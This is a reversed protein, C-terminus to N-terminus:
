VQDYDLHIGERRAYDHLHQAQSEQTRCNAPWGSAEEKIKLWTNVYEAFLGQRSQPFHWVEHIKLVVYGREVAKHLEPTCWTGTLARQADTHPCQWTKAHLPRDLQNEVCTRCLPFTLKDGTRYPLVPHYLGPPPLVTCKALGFYPHLDVTDPAYIFQPHGVPYRANKNVWPYLSTYDYYRIEEGPDATRHLQVVNTRGGFFAERPQLPPQLHLSAVYDAVQPQDLLRWHWDCEWMEVVTYGRVRLSRVKTQTTRYADEMTRDLLRAHTEQRQPHCRPCGHWYCGHFEYVTRTTADYGDVTYCTGPIRFEGQNRAHQLPRDLQAEVWRLWQLSKHSHNTRARWGQLPESAITEPQMRNTRLDRNCASAITMQDFPNFHVLAEFDRKFTLCGQKLLKVDSDCYALLEKQFDFQVGRAVQDAYWREFDQRGQVSMSDPLYTDQPPLPGVYDQNARTNFLILFNPIHQGDEQRSEIDFFVHFPASATDEQPPPPAVQVFCRHSQIEVPEKCALCLAYGCRHEEREKRGRLLKFCGSCKQRSQCVSPHGSGAPKGAPTLGLHNALCTPGYFARRCSSCSVTPSQYHAYADRYDSCGNQLCGGCHTPNHTCAHQGAHNYAQYCFSCFYGKGFFGPLSTLADYHGDEHLIGLRQAGRGYAFCAYAWNADVVVLTYDPLARAFQHLEDAGCPGPRVGSTEHLQIAEQLQLQLGRQFSRWKPHKEVYARATFLARACCLNADTQPIAIVTKKVVKLRTSSQHGPLYKRKTGGGYPGARVHVFSLHFTDDMQFNENSNLMRSLNELLRAVRGEDRRGEGATLGWGDYAHRLRDSALHFYVRDRDAISPDELMQALSTRLGQVFRAALQDHHDFTGRQHVRARFVREHM